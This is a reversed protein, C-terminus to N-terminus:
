QGLVVIAMTAVVLVVKLNMDGAFPRNFVFVNMYMTAMPRVTKLISALASNVYGMTEMLTLGSVIAPVVTLVMLGKTARLGPVPRARKAANVKVFLLLAKFLFICFALQLKGVRNMGLRDIAILCLTCKLTSLLIVFVNVFAVDKSSSKRSLFFMKIITLTVTM